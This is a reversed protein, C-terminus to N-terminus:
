TAEEGLRYACYDGRPEDEVVEGFKKLAMLHWFVVDTPLGTEDAVEPVTRPGGRLADKLRRLLRKQERNAALLDKPVGGRRERLVQIPKREKV